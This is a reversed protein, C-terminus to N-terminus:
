GTKQHKTKGFISICNKKKKASYLAQDAAVYTDKYKKFKHRNVAAIGISLTPRNEIGKFATRALSQQLRLAFHRAAEEDASLMIYGFEDGGLRGLVDGKRASSKLCKAVQRIVNDGAIHGYTDNVAKLNDLDISLVAFQENYRLTRSFEEELRTFFFRRNFLNTLSDTVALKSLKTNKRRLEATKKRVEEELSKNWSSMRNQLSILTIIQGAFNSLLLILNIKNEDFSDPLPHGCSIVGIISSGSKIPASLLSTVGLGRFVAKSCREDCTVDPIYIHDGSGIVGPAMDEILMAKYKKKRNGCVANNDGKTCCAGMRLKGTDPQKRLIFCNEFGLERTFIEAIHRCFVDVNRITEGMQGMKILASLARVALESFRESSELTHLFVESYRNFDGTKRFENEIQKAMAIETSSLGNFSDPPHGDGSLAKQLWEFFIPKSM